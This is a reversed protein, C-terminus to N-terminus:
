HQVKLAVGANVVVTTGAATILSRCIANASIVPYRPKGATLFVDTFDDPVKGTEWNAADHWDNSVAGTWLAKSTFITVQTNTIIPPNYDFYISAKNAVQHYTLPTKNKIKFVIYGHSLPENTTKDALMINNFAWTINNNNKISLNYNHSASIMEFSNWDLNTDLVDTVKINFATDTGTNQFRITYTLYKEKEIEATTISGAHNENKDNPDYSGRIINKLTVFNDAPAVDGTSDIFASNLITDGLNIVPIVPIDFNISITGSADPQLSAINWRLTDGSISLPVPQSQQFNLRSDKIFTVLKNIPTDTGNNIYRLNYNVSFGPRAIAATFLSLSLDRTGAIPHVPFDVTDLNKYTAFSSTINNSTVTYYPHNFLISTVFSGTDVSNAYNGNSPVSLLNFGQKTSTVKAKDFATEGADYVENNNADIFVKGIIANGAKLKVLWIDNGGHNGSVDHDNSNTYGVALFENGSPYVKVTTFYDDRSGGYYGETKNLYPTYVLFAEQGGYYRDVRDVTYLLSGAAIYATDPIITIGHPSAIKKAYDTVGFNGSCLGNFNFGAPGSMSTLPNCDPYNVSVNSYFLYNQATALAGNTYYRTPFQTSNSRLLAGTSPNLYILVKNNGEMVSPFQGFSGDTDAPHIAAVVEGNNMQIIDSAGDFLGNGFCSGWGANFADDIKFVWAGEGNPRLGTLNGDTSFTKGLVAFGGGALKTINVFYDSSSGGYCHSSLINGAANIEVLWIDTSGRNGTVDGGNASCQGACLFTSDTLPLISTFNDANDNGYSHQWVVSGQANVKAVWADTNATSHPNGTMDGNNSTTTGVIIAGGDALLIMDAAKDENTGGICKQWEIIPATQAQINNGTFLLLVSCVLLQLNVTM